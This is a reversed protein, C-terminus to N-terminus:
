TTHDPDNEWPTGETESVSKDVYEPREDSLRVRVYNFVIALSLSFPTGLLILPVGIIAQYAQILSLGFGIFGCAIIM